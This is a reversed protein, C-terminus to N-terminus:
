IDFIMQFKEPNFGIARFMDRYYPVDSGAAKLTSALRELTAARRVSFPLKAEQRLIRLKPLIQRKIKHEAYPYLIQSTFLGWINYLFSYM